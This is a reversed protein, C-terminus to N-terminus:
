SETALEVLVHAAEKARLSLSYGMVRIEMPDGAPARRIVQIAEGEVIGLHALRQSEADDRAFGIVTATQGTDLAALTVSM